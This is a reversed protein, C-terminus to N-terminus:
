RLNLRNKYRRSVPVLIKDRGKMRIAYSGSFTRSIEDIRDVNVIASRHVRVFDDPPLESELKSLSDSVLYSGDETHVEVYKDSARLLVVEAVPILKISDGVKVQLRNKYRGELAELAQRLRKEIDGDPSGALRTVKEVALALREPDVPKLLYDVSHVEFAQLAYQDYATSFVVLPISELRELVDFGTLEPMQVDLFVVDPRLENIAAVAAAGNGATAVIEIAEAHEELLRALRSLALPEDDVLIARLGM